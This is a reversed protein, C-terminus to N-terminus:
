LDLTVFALQNQHNMLVNQDQIILLEFVHHDQNMMINMQVVNKHQFM